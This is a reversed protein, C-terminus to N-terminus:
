SDIRPIHSPVLDYRSLKEELRTIVPPEGLFLTEYTEADVRYTEDTNETTHRITFYPNDLSALEPWGTFDASEVPLSIELVEGQRSRVLRNYDETLVFIATLEDTKPDYDLGFARFVNPGEANRQMEGAEVLRGLLQFYVRDFALEPSADFELSTLDEM